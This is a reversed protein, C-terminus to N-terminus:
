EVVEAPHRLYMKRGGYAAALVLLILTGNGIPAGAAAAPAQNGTLNHSSPPHPPNQAMLGVSLLFFSALLLLKSINTKM